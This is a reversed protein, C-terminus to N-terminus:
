QGHHDPAAPVAAVAGAPVPPAAYLQAALRARETDFGPRERSEIPTGGGMGNLRTADQPAGNVRFEYHLHPGSALGTSGVFGIVDSQAVHKGPRVGAAIKRLHGYRTTIGNRHRLEVLNGYGGSWGARLVVGDGAAMVPTGPDAAYDTGEHRRMIGLVPHFRARSMRSSIRRFAVPAALFARRLSHGDADYFAARGSPATYAFATLQKGSVRLDGALIRGLRVDGDESVQREVLVQFNDGPQIDRSFDVQWAFIDALDYALKAREGGGFQAEPVADDLADFLSADITGSIRVTESTWAVPRATADWGDAVRRLELRQGNAKVSVRTAPSGPAPKGFLFVLGARVRRADLASPLGAFDIGDVGHRAFLASLTEGPALTDTEAYETPTFRPLAVTALPRVEIRRWPWADRAAFLTAASLVAAAALLRLKM